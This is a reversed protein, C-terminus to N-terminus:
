WWKRKTIIVEITLPLSNCQSFLRLWFLARQPGNPFIAKKTFFAGFHCLAGWWFPVTKWFMARLAGNELFLNFITGDQFFPVTKAAFFTSFPARKEFRCWKPARPYLAGNKGCFFTFFTCSKQGDSYILARPASNKYPFSLCSRYGKAFPCWFLAWFPVTKRVTLHHLAGNWYRRSKETHGHLIHNFGTDKVAKWLDVVQRVSQESRITCAWM